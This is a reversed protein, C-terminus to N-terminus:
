VVGEGARGHQREDLVPMYEAGQSAAKGLRGALDARYGANLKEGIQVAEDATPATGLFQLAAFDEPENFQHKLPAWCTFKDGGSYTTWINRCVDGFWTDGVKPTFGLTAFPIRVELSYSDTGAKASAQIRTFDPAGEVGGRAGGATIGFQFVPKDAGPQFFLEVGDDEWFPGGDHVHLSMRAVDPEEAIIGIYLAQEDWCVRAVTQKALTYSGGLVSFGTAAPIGQWAPDGAVDGDLTPATAPRYCPYTPRAAHSSVCLLTLSIILLFARCERAM